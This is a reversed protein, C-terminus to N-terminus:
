RAIYNETIEKIHKIKEEDTINSSLIYRIDSILISSSDYFKNTDNEGQPKTSACKDKSVCSECWKPNNGCVKPFNDILLISYDMTSIVAENMGMTKFVERKEEFEKKLESRSILDNNM